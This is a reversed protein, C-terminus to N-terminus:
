AADDPDRLRRTAVAWTSMPPRPVPMALAAAFPPGDHGTQGFHAAAKARLRSARQRKGRREYYDALRWYRDYLYLHVEPRLQGVRRARVILLLGQMTLLDARLRWPENKSEPGRRRTEM